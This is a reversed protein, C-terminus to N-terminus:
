VWLIDTLSMVCVTRIQPTKSTAFECRYRVPNAGISNWHHWACMACKENRIRQSKKGARNKRGLGRKIARNKKHLAFKGTSVPQVATQKVMEMSLPGMYNSLPLKCQQTNELLYYIHMYVSANWLNWLDQSNLLTTFTANQLMEIYIYKGNDNHIPSLCCSCQKKIM